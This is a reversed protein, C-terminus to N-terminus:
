TKYRYKMLSELTLEQLDFITGQFEEIESDIKNCYDKLKRYNELLLETNRLRSDQKEKQVKM